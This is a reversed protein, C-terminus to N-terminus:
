NGYSRCAAEFAERGAYHQVLANHCVLRQTSRLCHSGSQRVHVWVMGGDVQSAASLVGGRETFGQQFVGDSWLRRGDQITLVISRCHMEVKPVNLLADTTQYGVYFVIVDGHSYNGNQQVIAESLQGVTTNGDVTLGGLVIDTAPATGDHTVAIEPLTGVSLMVTNLVCARNVAEYRTLYVPEAQMGYSMFTNYNSMGYRSNEYQPRHHPPFANWLNILNRWRMQSEMQRETPMAPKSGNHRTRAVLSGQRWYFTVEGVRGNLPKLNPKLKGM